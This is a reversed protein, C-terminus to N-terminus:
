DSNLFQGIANSIQVRAKKLAPPDDNSSDVMDACHATGPTVIPIITPKNFQPKLVGLKHWPDVLGNPFVVNSMTTFSINTGGYNKNVKNVAEEIEQKDFQPGFIDICQQVFFDLTLYEAFAEKPYDSTQFYGFETCTQYMWLRDSFM